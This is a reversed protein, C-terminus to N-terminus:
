EGLSKQFHLKEANNTFGSTRLMERYGRLKYFRPAQFSFTDLYVLKCGRKKAESEFADMILNGIGKSRSEPTVWIKLLECCEGWTRGIAGGVVEFENAKAIVQLAKVEAISSSQANFNDLENGVLEIEESTANSSIEIIPQVPTM